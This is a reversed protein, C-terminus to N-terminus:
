AFPDYDEGKSHKSPPEPTTVGSLARAGLIPINYRDVFYQPAIEYYQLLVREQERIEAPTMEQTLDWEFTLGKMPFGFRLMLPILKDNIIYQMRTADDLCVQEFMELHTESQSLSSGNDITMTQQIIAKSMESNLREIRKDYVKFADGRSTEKIEIETGDQLVAWMLAGMDNVTQGLQDLDKQNSSTTKAIRIPLGFTEGFMDWFAEMNKKSLYKPATGLLLGLSHPKGVEILYPAYIGERYPIGKSIEDGQDRLIVGYEPIVHKRPILQVGEFRMGLNDRVVSGFEILSHGWYISDLAYGLFDYFWERQLIQLAELSEEGKANTLKFKRGLTKGRRQAIIGSLHGDVLSDTYIDYLPARLPREPHIAMQWAKRWTGIDKKTLNDMKLSLEATISRGKASTAREVAKRLHAMDSARAPYTHTKTKSM